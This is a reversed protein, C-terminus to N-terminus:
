ICQGFLCSVRMASVGNVGPGLLCWCRGASGQLRVPVARRAALIVDRDLAVGRTTAGGFRACARDAARAVGRRSPRPASGSVIRAARARARTLAIARPRAGVCRARARRLGPASCQFVLFFQLGLLVRHVNFALFFQRGLLVRHVNFSWFSNFVLFFGIFM